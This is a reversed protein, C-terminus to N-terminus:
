CMCGRLSKPSIGQFWLGNVVTVSDKRGGCADGPLVFDGKREAASTSKAVSLLLETGRSVSNSENMAHKTNARTGIHKRESAV